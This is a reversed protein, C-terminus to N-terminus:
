ADLEGLAEADGNDASLVGLPTSVQGRLGLAAGVSVVADRDLYLLVHPLHDGSLYPIMGFPADSRDRLEDSPGDGVFELRLRADRLM